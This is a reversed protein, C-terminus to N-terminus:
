NGPDQQKEIISKLWDLVTMADAEDKSLYVTMAKKQIEVRMNKYYFSFLRSKENWYWDKIASRVLAML